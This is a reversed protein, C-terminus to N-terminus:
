ERILVSAHMFRKSKLSPLIDWTNHIVDYREVSDIAATDFGGISYIFRCDSSTVATHTCRSHNMDQVLIWKNLEADFREVSKLYSGGFGGLAYVGNPLSVAALARRRENMSGILEWVGKDFNFREVSNLSESAVGGSSGFGGIAYIYGEPGLTAALEDRRYIMESFDRWKDQTELNLVYCKKQIQVGDHGGLVYLKQNNVVVAM